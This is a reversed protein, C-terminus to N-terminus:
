HSKVSNTAINSNNALNINETLITEQATVLQKSALEAGTRAAALEIIHRLLDSWNLGAAQMMSALSGKRAFIDQTHIAIVYLKGDDNLRLDIRAYDRCGAIRYAQSACDRIRDALATDIPAPCERKQNSADIRLLPLYELRLNGFIGVRFEPGPIRSQIVIESDYNLKIQNIASALEKQSKVSIAADADSRPMVFIPFTIDTLSSDTAQLLCFPPVSVGAQQLLSFLTFRDQIRAHVNPDPGTYAIGAMELMAPVHLYRGYGQIGTSLNLAVGGPVGSHPHPQLFNRLDRLLLRDGELVKVNYGEDRLADILHQVSDSRTEPAAPGLRGITGISSRNRIVVVRPLRSIEKINKYLLAYIKKGFGTNQWSQFLRLDFYESVFVIGLLQLLMLEPFHILINMITHSQMQLMLVLAIVITWFLRWAASALNERDSAEAVAEAMMALIIVPFFALSWIWESRLWSGIFLASVLICATIALAVSIRAYLPLRAQRISPRVLIVTGLVIFIVLLSPLIGIEYFGVGMLVSRYGLVRLGFTLRVISILLAATPLVLLYIVTDRDVAPVWALNLSNNLLVGLESLGNLLPWDALLMGPLALIRALMMLLVLLTMLLTFILGSSRLYGKPKWLIMPQVQNSPPETYAGLKPVPSPMEDM